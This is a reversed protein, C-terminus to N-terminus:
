ATLLIWTAAAAIASVPLTIVWAGAMNLVTPWCVSGSGSRLGVGIIAGSAVHTTSVPLAVVSGALLMGAAVGSAALGELPDIETVREALTRTVRRGAVLSGAGMAIAVAIFLLPASVGIAAGSAIALAVMKPTDNLGRAFSLAANSM